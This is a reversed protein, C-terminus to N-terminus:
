YNAGSNRNSLDQYVDTSITESIFRCSGDGFSFNGGGTHTSAAYKGANTATASEVSQNLHWATRFCTRGFAYDNSGNQIGNGAWNAAFHNEDKLMGCREAVAFTNSAGGLLDTIKHGLNKDSEVANNGYFVGNGDQTGNSGNVAGPGSNGVYNSTALQFRGNAVSLGGFQRANLPATMDSPCRYSAISTQLLRRDDDTSQSSYRQWLPINDIDLESYLATQEKYPLIFVAWGYTPM